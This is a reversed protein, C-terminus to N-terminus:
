EHILGSTPTIVGNLVPLPGCQIPRQSIVHGSDGSIGRYGKFVGDPGWPPFLAVVESM